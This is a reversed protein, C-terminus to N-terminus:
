SYDTSFARNELSKKFDPPAAPGKAAEARGILRRM